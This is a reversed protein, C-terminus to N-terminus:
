KIKRKVIKTRVFDERAREDLKSMIMRKDRNLNPIIYDELATVKRRTDAIEKKLIRSNSDIEGVKLILPLTDEFLTAAGDLTTDSDTINYGRELISRSYDPANIKLLNVGMIKKETIDTDKAATVSASLYRTEIHGLQGQADKLTDFAETMNKQMTERKQKHDKSMSFYELILAENKEELLNHGTRSLDLTESIRKLETRTPKTRESIM